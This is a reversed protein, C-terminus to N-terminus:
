QSLITNDWLPQTVIQGAILGGLGAPTVTHVYELQDYPPTVLLAGAHIGPGIIPYAPLMETTMAYNMAGPTPSTGTTNRFSYPLLNFRAM